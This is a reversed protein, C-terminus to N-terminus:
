SPHRRQDLADMLARTTELSNFPPGAPLRAEFIQLRSVTSCVADFQARVMGPDTWGDVRLARGLRLVAEISSLEEVTVEDIDPMPCPIVITSLPSTPEEVVAPRLGVRGDVTATRVVGSQFDDAISSARDRLRITNGGRRAQVGPADNLDVVLVDDTVLEAGVACFMAAVTSKGQGSAGAFAVCSGDVIVASAHLVLSGRVAHLYATITGSMLISLYEQDVGPATHCTVEDFTETITFDALGFFRVTVGGEVHCASYYITDGDRFELETRNSAPALPVPAAEDVRVVVDIKDSASKPFQLPFESRIILGSADYTAWGKSRPPGSM